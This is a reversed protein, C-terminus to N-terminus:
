NLLLYIMELAQKMLVLVCRHKIGEPMVIDRLSIFKGEVMRGFVLFHINHDNFREVHNLMDKKNLYFKEDFVRM